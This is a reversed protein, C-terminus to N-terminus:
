SLLMLFVYWLEEAGSPPADVDTAGKENFVDTIVGVLVLGLTVILISIWHHIYQKKKTILMSLIATFVM